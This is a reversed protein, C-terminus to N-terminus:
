RCLKCSTVQLSHWLADFTLAPLFVRAALRSLTDVDLKLRPQVLAAVGAVMFVPLIVNVLTEM